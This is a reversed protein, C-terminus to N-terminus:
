QMGKFTVGNNDKILILRTEPIENVGNVDKWFKPGVPTYTTRAAVHWGLSEPAVYIPEIISDDELMTIIANTEPTLTSHVEMSENISINYFYVFVGVLIFPAIYRVEPFKWREGIWWYASEAISAAVIVLPIWRWLWLRGFSVSIEESANSGITSLLALIIAASFVFNGEIGEIFKRAYFAVGLGVGLTILVIPVPRLAMDAATLGFAAFSVAVLGFSVLAILVIIGAADLTMNSRILTIGFAGTIAVFPLLASINTFMMAAGLALAGLAYRIGQGTLLESEVYKLMLWFATLGMGMSLLTMFGYGLVFGYANIWIFTIAAGIAISDRFVVRRVILYFPIAMYLSALIAAIKGGTNAGFIGVFPWLYLGGLAHRWENGEFTWSKLAELSALYGLTDDGLMLVDRTIWLRLFFSIALAPLLYKM